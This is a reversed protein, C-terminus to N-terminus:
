RKISGKAPVVQIDCKMLANDCQLSHVPKHQRSHVFVPLDIVTGETRAYPMSCSVAKM